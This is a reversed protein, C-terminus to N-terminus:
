IPRLTRNVGEIRERGQEEVYGKFYLNLVLSLLFPTQFKHRQLCGHKVECSPPHLCLEPFMPFIAFVVILQSKFSVMLWAFTNSSPPPPADNLTSTINWCSGFCTGLKAQVVHCSQPVSFLFINPFYSLILTVGCCQCKCVVLM